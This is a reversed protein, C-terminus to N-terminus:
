KQFGTQFGTLPAARLNREFDRFPVSTGEAVERDGFPIKIKGARL